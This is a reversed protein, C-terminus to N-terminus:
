QGTVTRGLSRYGAQNPSFALDIAVPVAVALSHLPQAPRTNLQLVYCGLVAQPGLVGPRSYGGLKHVRGIPHKAADTITFGRLLTNDSILKGLDRGGAQLGFRVKGMVNEQRLLGIEGGTPATLTAKSKWVKKHALRAWPKGSRDVFAIRDTNDHDMLEGFSAEAPDLKEAVLEHCRGVITGSPSVISYRLGEGLGTEWQYLILVSEGFLTGDGAGARQVGAEALIDRIQAHDLHDDEAAAPQAGATAPTPDAPTASNDTVHETWARGDWYRHQHRRSPDPYWGAPYESM